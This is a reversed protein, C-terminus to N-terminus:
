NPITGIYRRSMNKMFWFFRRPHAFFLFTSFVSEFMNIFQFTLPAQQWRKCERNIWAQQQEATPFLLRQELANQLLISSIHPAAGTSGIGSKYNALVLNPYGPLVEHLYLYGEKTLTHHLRNTLPEDFFPFSLPQWGTCAVLTDIEKLIIGNSLVIDSGNFESIRTHPHLQVNPQQVLTFFDASISGPKTTMPSTAPMAQQLGQRIYYNRLVRDVFRDVIQHPRAFPLFALLNYLGISPYVWRPEDFVLHVEKAVPALTRVSEIASPGCGLIVIRKDAVSEISDLEVFHKVQGGFAALSDPVFPAQHLGTAVILGDFYETSESTQVVIRGNEFQVRSVETSFAVVGPPITQYLRGIQERIEQRSPHKSKWRVGGAFKYHRSNTQLNSGDNSFNVWVGGPLAQKEFVRVRYGAKLLHIANSLGTVGAGIIAVNFKKKSNM